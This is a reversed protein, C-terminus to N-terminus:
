SSLRLCTTILKDTGAKSEISVCGHAEPIEYEGDIRKLKVPIEKM